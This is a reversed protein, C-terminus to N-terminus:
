FCTKGYIDCVDYANAEDRYVDALPLTAGSRLAFRGVKENITRKVVAVAKQRPDPRDFLGLQAHRRATLEEAILRMYTVGRGQPRCANTLRVAAEYLVAFDAAAVPLTARRQDVGGDKFTLILTLRECFVGHRDLGEVLRETNRAVWAALRDPDTVAGALSGGRSINKRLAPVDRVPLVAAGNLEWWLDEGRKTLLRRILRRDARAFEACTRIGYPALRRASRRALGTIKEVPRGDLLRRLREEGLASVCGFPKGSSSALKALTKSAALGVSVPVGVEDLIARQLTRADAPTMGGADFFVEDISYYEVTPSFRRAVEIMRRSLVEYWQFDRKVFVAEPCLPLADWIPMGTTIGFARMEYSKAIVCAGQNGLVGVALGRLSGHRVRECSVYFCDADLHGVIRGM